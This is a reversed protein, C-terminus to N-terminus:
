NRVVSRNKGNGKAEYLSHDAEKLLEDLTTTDSNKQAIGSSITVNIDESSNSKIKISEVSKRINETIQKATDVSDVSM